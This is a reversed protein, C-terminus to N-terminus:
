EFWINHEKPHTVQWGSELDEHIIKKSIINHLAPQYNVHIVQQDVGWILFCVFVSSPLNKLAELFLLHVEFQLLIYEWSFFHLVKPHYYSFSSHLHVWDFELGDSFPRGWCIDLSYSGEKSKTVEVLLEDGGERVDSAGEQIEGFLPVGPDPFRVLLCCKLVEM